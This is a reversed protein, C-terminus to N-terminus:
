CGGSGELATTVMVNSTGTTCCQMVNSRTNIGVQEAPYPCLNVTSVRQICSQTSVSTQIRMYWMLVRVSWGRECM